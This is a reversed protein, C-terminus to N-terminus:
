MWLVRNERVDHYLYKVVSSMAQGQTKTTKKNQYWLYLWLYSLDFNKRKLSKCRLHAPLFLVIFNAVNRSNPMATCVQFWLFSSASAPLYQTHLECQVAYFVKGERVGWCAAFCSDNSYGPHNSHSFYQMSALQIFSHIFSHIFASPRTFLELAAAPVSTPASKSQCLFLLLERCRQSIVDNRLSGVRERLLSLWLLPM